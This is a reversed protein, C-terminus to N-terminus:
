EPTNQGLPQHQSTSLPVGNNSTFFQSIGAQLDTIKNMQQHKNEMNNAITGM